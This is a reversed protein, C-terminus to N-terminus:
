GNKLCQHVNDQPVHKIDENKHVQVVNENKEGERWFVDLVHM